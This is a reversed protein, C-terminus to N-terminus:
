IYLKLSEEIEIEVTDDFLFKYIKTTTGNNYFVFVFRYFKKDYKSLYSYIAIDDNINRKKLLSRGKYAGSLQNIEAFRSKMLLTASDKLDINENSSLLNDLAAKYNNAEMKKFFDDIIPACVADLKNASSTNESSKCGSYVVCLCAFLLKLFNM